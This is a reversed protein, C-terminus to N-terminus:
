ATRPMLALVPTALQTVITMMRSAPIGDQPSIPLHVDQKVDQIATLVHPKMLGTNTTTVDM